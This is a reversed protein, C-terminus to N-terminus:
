FMKNLGVCCKLVARNYFFLCTTRVKFKIRWDEVLPKDDKLWTITPTPNGAAPCRLVVQSSATKVVLKVRMAQLKTWFPKAVISNLSYPIFSASISYSVKLEM